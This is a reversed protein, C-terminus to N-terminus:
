FGANGCTQNWQADGWITETSPKNSAVFDALTCTGYMPDMDQCTSLPFPSANLVLRIYPTNPQFESSSSCSFREFVMRAAFPVQDSTRWNRDSPRYEVSLSPDDKALGLATLAMDITTDHGFELYVPVSTGSTNTFREVVKDVLLSGLMPGMNGPLGYGFAGVMLLDLEYEFDEIESHTFVDCWPSVGWAALDYACAYLAGHVDDTSLELGQLVANLRNQIPPLYTNGWAVTLNNGYNYQWLPCASM